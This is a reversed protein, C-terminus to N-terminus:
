PTWDLTEAVKGEIYNVGIYDGSLSITSPVYIGWYTITSAPTTTSTTKILDIELEQVSTSALTYGDAYDVTSTAFRQHLAFITNTDNGGVCGTTAYSPCMDDGQLNQDLATNGTAFMETPVTTSANGEDPQFSGYAISTTGVSFQMFQELEAANGDTTESLSSTANDDDVAIASAYWKEAAFPSAEVGVTTPDAVYWLPFTCTWTVTTDQSGSCTGADQSCTVNWTTTAIDGTYCDNPDYDTSAVLCSSSGVGSRYVNIDSAFIEDTTSANAVCSNDDTVDFYIEFGTTEGQEVLLEITSSAYRVNSVTPTANLVIFPSSTAQAPEGVAALGHEDEIFGYAPYSQDQRETNGLTFAASPDTTTLTSTAYTIDDCGVGATFNTSSCIYLKVQDAGGDSDPDSSTSNWTIVGFPLAGGATSLLSFSPAHNVNFPSNNDLGATQGTFTANCAANGDNEDCIFAYWAYSELLDTEQVTYTATSTAGSATSTSVAWQGAGNCSPAGSTSATPASSDKCILLYYDEGNGDTAKAEFTVNSGVNTPSTTTSAPSEFADVDWQPPLNIVTVSTTANDASATQIHGGHQIDFLFVFAVAFVSLLTAAITVKGANTHTTYRM